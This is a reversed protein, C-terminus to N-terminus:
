SPHWSVLEDAEEEMLILFKQVVEPDFQIGAQSKVYDLAAKQSWAKRYPRDSRLADWVDVVAFVRASLPIEEGKLGRPYGTGDWREHHCYPIELAPRLFNIPYLMHYAYEPHKKMIDWERENLEGPKLLISDTVGIKGIDHLLAGRRVHILEENPIGMMRALQVTLEVVRQSHGETEKDRLDLAYVWGELTSDYMRILEQNTQQLDKFLQANNIAIAAQGALTEIFDFWEDSVDLRSRQFIELLGVVNGKAILPISLYSVFNEEIIMKARESSETVERLNPIFVSKRNRVARGAPGHGFKVQLNKVALSYFGKSAAYELTQLAPDYLLVDAADVGLQSIVQDLLLNLTFQLDLSANIANDITRLALLRQLRQTTQELLSVRHISSAAINAVGNLIHLKDAAIPWASGIGVIGLHLNQTNLSLCTISTLGHVLDPHPFLTNENLLDFILPHPSNIAKGCSCETVPLRTGTLNAWPGNGLEISIDEKALDYMGIFAAEAGALAKIHELIKPFLEARTTANRLDSSFELLSTLEATRQREAEYLRSNELAIAVQHTFANLSDAHMENFFGPTDHDLNLVGIVENNRIIPAGIYSRIWEVGKTLLWRPDGRTDSIVVPQRTRVIEELNKASSVELRHDALWGIDGFQEFGRQRIVRAYGDQILMITATVHPVVRGVIDLVKDLIADFDLMSNLVTAADRLAEALARQEREHRQARLREISTSLQGALTTLLIIDEDRFNNSQHSEANIVGLVEERIKLPVCIESRMNPTVERYFPVKTIDQSIFPKGERAVWAAISPADLPLERHLMEPSVGRYSPHARLVGAAKDLLLVGFHDTYLLNGLEMTARSILEDEDAVEVAASSVAHLIYQHLIQAQIKDFLLAKDVVLGAQSAFVRLLRADEETFGQPKNAALIIGAFKERIMMPVVLMSEMGLSQAFPQFLDPIESLHNAWFSSKKTFDWVELGEKRPYRFHALQEDSIGYAPSQAQIEDAGEELLAVLCMQAHLLKALRHTLLSYTGRPEAMSNFADAIEYLGVLEENQRQLAAETRERQIAAGFINATTKLAELEATTWDREEWCDDFGIFGWWEEGIFIPVLVLSRIEQPTLLEQIQDSFERVRGYVTEGRAMKEEWEGFGFEVYAMKQLDPNDIQPSIGAAVWEFLQSTTRYQNVMPDNAFIYVRSVEVAEGLRELVSQINTRWSSTQLFQHATFSIAELITERRPHLREM